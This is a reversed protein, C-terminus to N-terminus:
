WSFHFRKDTVTDPLFDAISLYQHRYRVKVYQMCNAKTVPKNKGGKMLEFSENGPLTFYQELHEFDAEDTLTLARLSKYLQPDM